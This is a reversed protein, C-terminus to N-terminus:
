GRVGAPDAHAPMPVRMRWSVPPQPPPSPPMRPPPRPPPSPYLCCKPVAQWTGGMSTCTAADPASVCNQLLQRQRRALPPELAPPVIATAAVAAAAAALLLALLAESRGRGRGIMTSRALPASPPRQPTLRRGAPQARLGPALQSVRPSYRPSSWPQISRCHSRRCAVPSLSAASAGTASPSGPSRGDTGM